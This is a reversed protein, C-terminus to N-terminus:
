APVANAPHISTIIKRDDYYDASLGHIQVHLQRMALWDLKSLLDLGTCYLVLRRAELFAVDDSVNFLNAFSIRRPHHKRKWEAALIEITGFSHHALSGIQEAYSALSEGPDRDIWVRTAEFADFEPLTCTTSDGTIEANPAEFAAEYCNFKDGHQVAEHWCFVGTCRSLLLSAWATGSRPLGSIIFRKNM